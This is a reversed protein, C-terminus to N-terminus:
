ADGMYVRVDVGANTISDTRIYGGVFVFAWVFGEEEAIAGDKSGLICVYVRYVQVEQPM